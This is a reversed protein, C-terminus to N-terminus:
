ATPPPVFSFCPEVARGNVKWFCQYSDTDFTPLGNGVGIEITEKTCEVYIYWGRKPCVGLEAHKRWEEPRICISRYCDVIETGYTQDIVSLNDGLSVRVPLAVTITECDPACIVWADTEACAAITDQILKCCDKFLDVPEVPSPPDPPKPQPQEPCGCGVSFSIYGM